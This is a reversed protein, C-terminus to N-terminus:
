ASCIIFLRYFFFLIFFHMESVCVFKLFANWYPMTEPTAENLGRIIIPVVFVWMFELKEACWHKSGRILGALLECLARCKSKDRISQELLDQIFPKVMELPRYELLQFIGKYFRATLNEFTEEGRSVEMSIYKVFNEWYEKTCITTTICDLADISTPDIYPLTTGATGPSYVTYKEPWCYYGVSIDDL